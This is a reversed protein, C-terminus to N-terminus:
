FLGRFSCNDRYRVQQNYFTQTWVDGNNANNDDFTLDLGSSSGMTSTAFDSFIADPNVKLMSLFLALHLIDSSGGLLVKKLNRMKITVRKVM